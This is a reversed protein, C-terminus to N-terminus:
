DKHKRMKPATVKIKKGTQTSERINRLFIKQRIIGFFDLMAPLAFELMNAAEHEDIRGEVRELFLKAENGAVYEAAKIYYDLIEPPFGREEDFGVQRMRGWIGVLNADTISLKPGSKTVKLEIIGIRHLARADSEAKPNQELLMELSVMGRKVGVRSAVLEELHPLSAAGLPRGGHAGNLTAKIQPLTMGSERQLKRIASIARVHEDGYDAVNRAPRSPDPLLGERFYVRITERNVGTRTELDRMKMTPDGM